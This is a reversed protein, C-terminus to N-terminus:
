RVAASTFKRTSIDAKKQERSAPKSPQWKRGTAEAQKQPNGPNFPASGAQAKRPKDMSSVMGPDQPAIGSTSTPVRIPDAPSSLGGPLDSAPGNMVGGTTTEPKADAPNRAGSFSPTQNMTKGGMQYVGAGPPMRPAPPMRPPLPPTGQVPPSQQGPYGPSMGPGMNGGAYGPPQGGGGMWPPRVMPKQMMQGRGPDMGPPMFPGSGGPYNMGPPLHGPAPKPMSMGGGAGYSGPGWAPRAQMDGGQWGPPASPGPMGMGPGQQMGQDPTINEMGQGGGQQSQMIRLYQQFMQPDIGGPMGQQGMGPPAQPMGYGGMGQSM